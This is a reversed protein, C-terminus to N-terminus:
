ISFIKSVETSLVRLWFAWLHKVCEIDFTSPKQNPLNDFCDEYGCPENLCTSVDLMRSVSAEKKLETTRRVDSTLKVPGLTSADPRPKISM